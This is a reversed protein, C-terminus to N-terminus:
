KEPSKGIRPYILSVHDGQILLEYDEIVDIDFLTKAPTMYELINDPTILGRGGSDGRLALLRERYTNPLLVPNGRKKVGKGEAACVIIKDSNQEGLAAIGDIVEATVFPQDAVLFIYRSHKEAARVGARIAATRGEDAGPNPVVLFGAALEALRPNNTVIIRADVNACRIADVAYAALPKNNYELTLKDRGM